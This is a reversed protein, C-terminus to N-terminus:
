AQEETELEALEDESMEFVGLAVNDIEVQLADRLNILDVLDLGVIVAENEADGSDTSTAEVRFEIDLDSEGNLGDSSVEDMYINYTDV